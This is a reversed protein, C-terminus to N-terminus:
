AKSVEGSNHHEAVARPFGGCTLYSQWDLDYDDACFALALLDSQAHPTQFEAPHLVPPLPLAPRTAVLYNRFTLPLLQRTRRTQSTGARVTLLNGQIDEGPAWRSGSVM